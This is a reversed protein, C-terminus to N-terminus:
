IKEIPSYYNAGVHDRIKHLLNNMNIDFVNDNDIIRVGLILSPDVKFEIKKNPFLNELEKLYADSNRLPLATQVYVTSKNVQEKLENIFIKLKKRSLSKSIDEIKKEDLNNKILCESVLKKLSKKNM